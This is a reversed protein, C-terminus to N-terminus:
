IEIMTTYTTSTMITRFGLIRDKSTETYDDIYRSFSMIDDKSKSMKQLISPAKLNIIEDIISVTKIM